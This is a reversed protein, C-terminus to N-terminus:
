SQSNPDMGEVLSNAIRQFLNRRMLRNVVKFLRKREKTENELATKYFDYNKKVEELENSLCLNTRKTTELETALSINKEREIELAAGLTNCRGTLGEKDKKLADLGKLEKSTRENTTRVIEQLKRLQSQSEELKKQLESVELRHRALSIVTVKSAKKQKKNQEEKM